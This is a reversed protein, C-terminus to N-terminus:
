CGSEGDVEPAETEEATPSAANDFRAYPTGNEGIRMAEGFWTNETRREELHRAIGKWKATYNHRGAIRIAEDLYGSSTNNSAEARGLKGEAANATARCSHRENRALKQTGM